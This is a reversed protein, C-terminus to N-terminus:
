LRIGSWNRAEVESYILWALHEMSLIFIYPSLPDGQRIGRSPTFTDLREGNVLVALSTSTICTM